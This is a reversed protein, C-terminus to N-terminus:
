FFFFATPRRVVVVYVLFARLLRAPRRLARRGSPDEEQCGQRENKLPKPTIVKYCLLQNHSTEEPPIKALLPPSRGDFGYIANRPLAIM